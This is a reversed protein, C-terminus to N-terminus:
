CTFSAAFFPWPRRSQPSKRDLCRYKGGSSQTPCSPCRYHTALSQCCSPSCSPALIYSCFYTPFAARGCSGLLACRVLAFGGGRIRLRAPAFRADNRLCAPEPGLGHICSLSCRCGLRSGCLHSKVTGCSSAKRSSVTASIASIENNFKLDFLILFNVFVKSTAQGSGGENVSLGNLPRRRLNAHACVAPRPHMHRAIQNTAKPQHRDLAPKRQKERAPEPNKVRRPKLSFGASEANHVINILFSSIYFKASKTAETKLCM